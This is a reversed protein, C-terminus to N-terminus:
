AAQSDDFSNFIADEDDTYSGSVYSDNLPDKSIARPSSLGILVTDQKPQAIPLSPPDKVTGKTTPKKSM